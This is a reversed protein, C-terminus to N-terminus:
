CPLQSGWPGVEAAWRLRPADARGARGELPFLVWRGGVQQLPRHRPDLDDGFPGAPFHHQWLRGPELATQLREM